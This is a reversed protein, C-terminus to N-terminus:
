IIQKVKEVKEDADRRSIVHCEQHAFFFPLLFILLLPSSLPEM